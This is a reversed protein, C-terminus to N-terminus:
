ALALATVAFSTAGLVLFGSLVLLPGSRKVAGIIGMLLGLLGFAILVSLFTDPTM